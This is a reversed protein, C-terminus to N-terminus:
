AVKSTEAKLPGAYGNAVVGCVAGIGITCAVDFVHKVVAVLEGQPTSAGFAIVFLTEIAGVIAGALMGLKAAHSQSIPGSRAAYSWLPMGVAFVTLWAVPLGVLTCFLVWAILGVIDALVGVVGPATPASVGSFLAMSGFMLVVSLFSALTGACLLGGDIRDDSPRANM